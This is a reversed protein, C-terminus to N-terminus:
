DSRFGAALLDHLEPVEPEDYSELWDSITDADEILLDALVGDSVIDLAMPMTSVGTCAVGASLLAAPNFMHIHSLASASGDRSVLKMGRDLYPYKGLSDDATLGTDGWLKIEKRLNGLWPISQVDVHFGSGVIVFDFHETRTRGQADVSDVEIGQSVARVASWHVGMRLEYADHATCREVTWRPPPVPMQQMRRIIRLKNEDPLHEHFEILSRTEMARLYNAQPIRHRRIFQVVEAGSELAVAANDFASAGAGVVAVRKGRLREFDFEQSSHIWRDRPLGEVLEPVSPGGAGLMGTTVILKRTIVEREGVASRLQLPLYEAGQVQRPEGLSLLETENEVPVDFADRVWQVYEAWVDKPLRPMDEYAQDGHRQRYWNQFTASPFGVDPGHRGKDSRLAHMRAWTSWPGERGRPERDIVLIRDVGQTLLKAAVSTGVQGAGVVVVDYSEEDTDRRVIGADEPYSYLSREYALQEDIGQTM